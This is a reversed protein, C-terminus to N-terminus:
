WSAGGVLASCGIGVGNLLDGAAVGLLSGIFNTTSADLDSTQAVTNCCHTPGANCQSQGGSGSGSDGRRFSASLRKTHVPQPALGANVLLAAFLSFLIFLVFQM